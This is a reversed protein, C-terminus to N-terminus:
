SKRRLLLMTLDDSASPLETNPSLMRQRCTHILQKIAKILPGKHAIEIIEEMLLNDFLGDSALLVTDHASLVVPSSIEIRMDHAGLMNSLYHRNEHTVADNKSLMGAEVAYDTPAHSITELKLKGKGGMILIKSDGVHFARAENNSIELLAATSGAGIGLECINRNAEEIGDLLIDRLSRENDCSDRLAKELSSLVISSAEHGRPLGGMGDAVLLVCRNDEFCFIASADENQGDKHPARSTYVAIEYPGCDIFQPEEGMDTDIFVFSNFM